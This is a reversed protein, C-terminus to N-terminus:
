RLRSYKQHWVYGKNTYACIRKDLYFYNMFSSIFLKFYKRCHRKLPFFFCNWNVIKKTHFHEMNQSAQVTSSYTYRKATQWILYKAKLLLGKKKKCSIRNFLIKKLDREVNDVSILESTNGRLFNLYSLLANELSSWFNESPWLIKLIKGNM